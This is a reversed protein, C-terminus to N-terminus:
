APDPWLLGLDFEIEAFPEVHVLRSAPRSSSHLDGDVIEAVRHAPVERLDAYTVSTKAPPAM